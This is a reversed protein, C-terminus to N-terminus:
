DPRGNGVILIVTARALRPLVMSILPQKPLTLVEGAEFSSTSKHIADKLMRTMRSSSDESVMDTPQLIQRQARIHLYM